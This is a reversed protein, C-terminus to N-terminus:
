LNSICSTCYYSLAANKLMMPFAKLYMERPVETRECLDLFIRYKYLYDFADSDGSYKQEDTHIKALNALNSNRGSDRTQNQNDQENYQPTPIAPRARPSINRQPMTQPSASRSRPQAKLIQQRLQMWAPREKDYEPWEEPNSLASELEKASNRGKRIYLGNERLLDRLQKASNRNLGFTAATFNVFGAKWEDYLETGSLDIDIYDDIKRQIYEGVDESTAEEIQTKDWLYLTRM